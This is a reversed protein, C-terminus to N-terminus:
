IPQPFELGLKGALHALETWTGDNIEVEQGHGDKNGGFGHLVIFAPRQEGPRLDGPAGVVASLKLGDSLITVNQEM